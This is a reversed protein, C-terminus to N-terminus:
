RADPAGPNSAPKSNVNGGTGGTLTQVQAPMAQLNGAANIADEIADANQAIKQNAAASSPRSYQGLQLAEPPFQGGRGGYLVPIQKIDNSSALAANDKTGFLASLDGITGKLPTKDDPNRLFATLRGAERAIVVNQAQQPDADITVTSYMRREGSKPDDVSRQGTAMVKISQLLPATVRKGKQDVTVILDILDGPELLGSISNIEDVPVTIARRGPEVRASFTPVKKGEMLGWLIMEGAKVSYALAQGEARDFQDPLIAASHAFESPVPRIAVTDSSLKSGKPLDVKAVVINVNKGRAQAELDAVRSNLYSRAGLAAVLGITVAVGLVIWTKNPRFSKLKALNM